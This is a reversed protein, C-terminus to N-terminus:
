ATWRADRRRGPMAHRAARMQRAGPRVVRPTGGRAVRASAPPTTLDSHLRQAWRRQHRHHAPGWRLLSDRPLLHGFTERNGAFLEEGTAARRLWRALLRPLFVRLSPGLWLLLAARSLLM